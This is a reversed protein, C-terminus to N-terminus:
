EDRLADMPSVNAARLAPALSAAFATGAVLALVTVLSIPDVADVGFLLARLQWALALALVGGTALGTAVLRGGDALVMRLIAGRDAGLSMRVGIEATRQAVAFALVGYVGIGSLVLAVGAFLLFLLLPTRQPDLSHARRDRMPTVDWIPQEPDIQALAARLAAAVAGADLETRIAIRFIRGPAQRIPWYYTGQTTGEGLGHRKVTAVVGVITRWELKDVGRTAIRRGLPSQAGFERQALAEDVIAVPAAHEDDTLAFDRGQLLAIGMTAFLGPDVSQMYGNAADATQERGEIFYPSGDNDQSFPMSSILGASKVGPLARVAAILTQQFERTHAPDRYHDRSLNISAGILHTSDFGPDQTSLRWFSHALLGAGLLLAVALAQQIVVLMNLRRRSTPGGVSVRGGPALGNAGSTRLSLLPVAAAAAATLLLVLLAFGLVPLDISVEFGLAAGDFGQARIFAIGVYALVVGLTSGAATLLLCETFLYSALRGMSAGLAARVALERQRTSLRILLLNAVNACAIALVLAVAAQLLLLLPGVDGVLEQHLSRARGTFTSNRTLSWFGNGSADAHIERQRSSIADFQANLQAITAGPRLRGVSQAFEFGRMADSRQKDSFAFPLWLQVDRRPFVFTPPMVGIVRYARGNFRVDRGVINEDAGFAARWLADSLLLVPQAPLWMVSRDGDPEADAASFARGIRPTVGLTTFLSPTAVVGSLRQPPSGPDALDFSYDYYLASDALADAHVRDLYDAVTTGSEDQGYSNHIAVLREGAPYPLPRLLLGEIVSFVAVNAGIGLALTMVAAFTFGPRKLLARVSRRVDTLLARSM